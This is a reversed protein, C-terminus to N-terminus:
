GSPTSGYTWRVEAGTGTAYNRIGTLKVIPLPLLPDGVYFWFFIIYWVTGLIPALIRRISEMTDGEGIGRQHNHSNSDGKWVEM